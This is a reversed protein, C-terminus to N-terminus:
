IKGKGLYSIYNDVPAEQRVSGWVGEIREVATTPLPGEKIDRLTEELQQTKTAGIICGDGLSGKLASHYLVWRYALASRSVGAEKAIADWEKLAELLAPKGYLTRYM